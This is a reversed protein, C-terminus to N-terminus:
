TKRRWQWHDTDGMMTKAHADARTITPDLRVEILGRRELQNVINHATSLPMPKWEYTVLNLVEQQKKNLTIM